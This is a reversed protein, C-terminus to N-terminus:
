PTGYGEVWAVVATRSGGPGGHCRSDRPDFFALWLRSTLPL